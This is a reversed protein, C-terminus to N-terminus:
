GQDVGESAPETYVEVRDRGKEKALYLAKDSQRILDEYSVSLHNDATAVGVSITVMGEPSSKEHEIGLNKVAARIEEAIFIAGELTTDPLVVIFEEGGYRACFDSPRKLTKQIALAVKKLCEDGREHGYTDNYPKFHDIDVMLVSLPYKNRRSRNFETRARDLFSRRNPIGTLDDTVAQNKILEYAESLKRGFLAIGLLGVLGIAIHGITLAMFPIQPVFPLTVSIGGRIDGEHYGHQAHCPLCEKETKLPAMYFFTKNSADVVIQGIEQTGKEFAKLALEERPTPRNEPRIPRLSTLHFHIGERKAAIEAIQRTMFSPNVKTLKLNKNVEIDRLPDNLYPNPQTDETVPVYVGGHMANWSRSILVQSFFSRATQLAIANQEKNANLYNWVFSTGVLIIWISGVIFITRKM